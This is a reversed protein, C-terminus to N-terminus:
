GCARSATRGRTAEGCERPTSRVDAPCGSASNPSRAGRERRELASPHDGTSVPFAHVSGVSSAAGDSKMRGIRVIAAAVLIAACVAVVAVVIRLLWRQRDRSCPEGTGPLARQGAAHSGSVDIDRSPVSSASAMTSRSTLQRMSMLYNHRSLSGILCRPSSQEHKAATEPSRFVVADPMTPQRGRITVLLQSLADPDCGARRSLERARPVGAPL